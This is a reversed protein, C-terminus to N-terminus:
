YLTCASQRSMLPKLIVNQRKIKHLCFLIMGGLLRKVEQLKLYNSSHKQAIKLRLFEQNLMEVILLSPTIVTSILNKRLAVFTPFYRHRTKSCFVVCDVAEPTLEYRTVKNTILATDSPVAPDGGKQPTWEAQLAAPMFYLVKVRFTPFEQSFM